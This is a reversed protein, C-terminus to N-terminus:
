AGVTAKGSPKAPKTGGKAVEADRSTTTANTTGTIEHHFALWDDQDNLWAANSPMSGDDPLGLAALIERRVIGTHVYGAIKANIIGITAPNLKVGARARILWEIKAIGAHKNAAVLAGLTKPQINVGDCVIGDYGGGLTHYGYALQENAELLLKEIMRPLHLLGSTGMISSSILPARLNAEESSENISKFHTNIDILGGLYAAFPIASNNDPLDLTALINKRVAEDRYVFASISANHLAITTNGLKAESQVDIWEEFVSEEPKNTAVFQLADELSFGIAKATINDFETGVYYGPALKGQTRLLLKQWLHPLNNFGLPGTLLTSIVPVM